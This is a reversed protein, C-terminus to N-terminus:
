AKVERTIEYRYKHAASANERLYKLLAEDTHFVTFGDPRWCRSDEDFVYRIVVWGM